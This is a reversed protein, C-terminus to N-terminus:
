AKVVKIEGARGDSTVWDSVRSAQNEQWSIGLFPM